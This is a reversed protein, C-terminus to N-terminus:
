VRALRSSGNHGPRRTTWTNDLLDYLRGIVEICRADEGESLAEDAERSLRIRRQQSTQVELMGM